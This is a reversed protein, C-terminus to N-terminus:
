RIEREYVSFGLTTLRGVYLRTGLEPPGHPSAALADAMVDPHGVVAEDTSLAAWTAQWGEVCGRRAPPCALVICHHDWTTCGRALRALRDPNSETVLLVLPDVPGDFPPNPVGAVVLRPRAGPSPRVGDESLAGDEFLHDTAALVDYTSLSLDAATLGVEALDGIFDDSLAAGDNLHAIVPATVGAVDDLGRTAGLEDAHSGLRGVDDVASGVHSGVRAADDCLKVSVGAVGLVVAGIVHILSGKSAPGPAGERM